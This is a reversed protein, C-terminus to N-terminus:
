FLVSCTISGTYNTTSLSASDTFTANIRLYRRASPPLLIQQNTATLSSGSLAYGALQSINAFTSNDASDQYAISGTVGNAKTSTITSSNISVVVRETVPYPTAQIFDLSPTATATQLSASAIYNIDTLLRSNTPTNTALSM